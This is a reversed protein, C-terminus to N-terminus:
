ESGLIRFGKQTSNQIGKSSPLQGLPMSSHSTALKLVAWDNPPRVISWVGIGLPHPVHPPNAYSGTMMAATDALGNKRVDLSIRCCQTRAHNNNLSTVLFRQRSSSVKVQLM